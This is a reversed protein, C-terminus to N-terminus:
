DSLRGDPRRLAVLAVGLRGDGRVVRVGTPEQALVAQPDPDLGRRPQEGVRGAELEGVPRQAPSAAREGFEVLRDAVEDAIVKRIREERGPVGPTEVLKRLLEM